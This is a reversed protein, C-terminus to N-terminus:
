RRLEGALQGLAAMVTADLQEPNAAAYAQLEAIMPPTWFAKLHGAIRDTARQPPLAANNRAIQRAMKILTDIPV